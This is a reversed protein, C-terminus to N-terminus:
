QLYKPLVFHMKLVCKLGKIKLLKPNNYYLIQNNHVESFVMHKRLGAFANTNVNAPTSHTHEAKHLFLGSRSFRSSKM